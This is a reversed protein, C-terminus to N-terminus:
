SSFALLLVTCPLPARWVQWQQAHTDETAVTSAATAAQDAVALLHQERASTYQKLQAAVAALAGRPLPVRALMPSEVADPKAEAAATVSEFSENIVEWACTSSASLQM